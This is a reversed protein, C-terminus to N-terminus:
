NVPEDILELKEILKMLENKTFNGDLVLKYVGNSVILSGIGGDEVYYGTFGNIKVDEIPETDSTLNEPYGEKQWTQKLTLVDDVKVYYSTYRQFEKDFEETGVVYGEPVEGLRYKRFEGRDEEVDGQVEENQIRVHDEKQEIRFGNLWQKIPEAAIVSGGVLMLILLAIAIWKKKSRIPRYLELLSDGSKNAGNREQSELMRFVQKMKRRFRVSFQHEPLEKPRSEYDEKVMEELAQKLLKDMDNM